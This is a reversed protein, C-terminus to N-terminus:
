WASNLLASTETTVEDDPELGDEAADHMGCEQDQEDPQLRGLFRQHLYPGFSRGLMKYVDDRGLLVVPYRIAPLSKRKGADTCTFRKKLGARHLVTEVN